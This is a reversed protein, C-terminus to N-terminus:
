AAAANLDEEFEATFKRLNPDYKVEFLGRAGHTELIRNVIIPELNAQIFGPLGRAGMKADYRQACFAKLDDDHLNARIGQHSYARDLGTVERRVIREISPLHLREFGIINERGAFRNLFEPRYTGELDIMALASAEEHGIETNLFHPQGTNTTCIIISENFQAVRGVNDSLRGDDLVQLLINFVDPHAKEIEDFLIIRRRNKRMANTLIGGAEFGEYGPPAGILKAVAHKEMYESMDFRLLAKEDGLLSLSLVKAVETKGVGSPGMFMFSALPKDGNRRGIKSVKIANSVKAIVPDQGFVRGRLDADLRRLAGIDDENLKDTNIGTILSFEATVEKEGLSLNANIESTIADFSAKNKAIEGQYLRIKSTIEAVPASEGMAAFAAGFGRRPQEQEVYTGEALAKEREAKAKAEKALIGDKEEELALIATEGERQLRYLHKISEQRQTWTRVEAILRQELAPRAEPTASALEVELATITPTTKHAALRYTSLARDLLSVTRDPQARSLGGEEIPYKSTLDIAKRIAADTIRIHHHNFLGEAVGAVIEYLHEANPEQVDMFTYSERIDSHWKLVFDLDGDRTELIVQTKNSKVALTLANIFHNNGSSRSAEIFDRTDEIILVSEPTVNLQKILRDFETRITESNGSSFLGDTDLWFIRKEVIDFPANPDNKMAQLGLCLATTGVGAPGVLLVSNAKKRVLIATLRRLEDDRGILRFGPYRDLFAGGRILHTAEAM